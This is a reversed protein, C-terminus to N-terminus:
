FSMLLGITSQLPRNDCKWCTLMATISIMIFTKPSMGWRIRSLVELLWFTTNHSTDLCYVWCCYKCSSQKKDKSLNKLCINVFQCMPQILNFHKKFALFIVMVSNTVTRSGNLSIYSAFKNSNRWILLKQINKISAYKSSTAEPM